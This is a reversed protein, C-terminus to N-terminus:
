IVLSTLASFVRLSIKKMGRAVIEELNVELFIRAGSQNIAEVMICNLAHGVEEPQLVEQSYAVRNVTSIDSKSHNAVVSLKKKKIKDYLKLSQM